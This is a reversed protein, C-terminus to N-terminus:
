SCWPTANWRRSWRPAFPKGTVFSVCQTRRIKRALRAFDGVYTTEELIKAEPEPSEEAFKLADQVEADVQAELAVLTDAGGSEELIKRARLLPDKAKREELAEKTRYKGPDSMSSDRICM